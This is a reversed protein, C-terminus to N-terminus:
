KDLQKILNHDIHTQLTKTAFSSSLEFLEGNREGLGNPIQIKKISNWYIM